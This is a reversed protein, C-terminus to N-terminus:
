GCDGAAGAPCVEARDAEHRYNAYRMYRCDARRYNREYGPGPPSKGQDAQFVGRLPHYLSVRGQNAALHLHLRLLLHPHHPPSHGAHSRGAAAAFDASLADAFWDKIFPELAAAFLAGLLLGLLLGFYVASITTIQKNRILTDGAIVATGLGFVAVFALIGNSPESSENFQLLAGTALGLIIIGFIGRLIWVLM